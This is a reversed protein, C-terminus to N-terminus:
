FSWGRMKFKQIRWDVPARGGPNQELKKMGILQMQRPSIYLTKADCDYYPMCHTFDFMKRQETYTGLTILQVKGKLTIANDTILKKATFNSNSKLEEYSQNYEMISDNYKQPIEEKLIPIMSADRCWLDFDKPEEGHYISSICSGSLICNAMLRHYLGNPLDIMVSGFVSEVKEKLAKAKADFSDMARPDPLVTNLVNVPIPQIPQAIFGQNNSPGSTWQFPTTKISTTTNFIGKANTSPIVNTPTLM